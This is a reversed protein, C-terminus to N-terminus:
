PFRTLYRVGAELVAIDDKAHGLMLNCGHCLIGRVCEGCSRGPSPCCAHDHDVHWRRANEPVTKCVACVGGQRDLLDAFQEPTLHFNRLRKAERAYEPGRRERDVASRDSLCARCMKRYGMASGADAYYETLPLDVRGCANCAWPAIGTSLLGVVCTECRKPRPGHRVTLFTGCEDCAWSAKAKM